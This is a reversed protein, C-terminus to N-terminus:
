HYFGTTASAYVVGRLASYIFTVLQTNGVATFTNTIGSGLGGFDVGTSIPITCIDDSYGNITVIQGATFGTLVLTYAGGDVLGGINVVTSGSYSNVQINGTAFNICQINTSQADVVIAGGRVNLLSSPTTTGIGVKGSSDIRMRESPATDTTAARTGIIFDGKGSGSVSTEQMGIYVPSYTEPSTYGFGIMRYNNVIGQETGGLHMYESAIGLATPANTGGKSISLRAGPSTTGIGVNGANYFILTGSSVWPSGGHAISLVGTANSLNINTLQSGDVAPLKAFNDLQVIQNVGTGSTMNSVLAKVSTGDYYKMTNAVSDYWIQGASLGSGPNGAVQSIGVTGNASSQLYNAQPVSLLNVLRPYNLDSFINEVAVQTLNTITNLNLFQNPSLGQLTDASDANLSSPVSNIELNPSLIHDLNDISGRIVVRLYRSEGSIPTYNCNSNNSLLKGNIVSNNSYIHTMLNASDISSRKLDSLESGVHISFGGKTNLTDIYQIEEYLICTQDASLIQLNIKINPDELPTVGDILTLRGDLNFYSTFSAFSILSFFHLLILLTWILYKFQIFKINVSM